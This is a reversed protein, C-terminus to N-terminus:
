IRLNTSLALHVAQVPPRVHPSARGLTEVPRVASAGLYSVTAPAPNSARSSDASPSTASVSAVRHHDHGCPTSGGRIRAVATGSHHCTPRALVAATAPAAECNAACVDVGIPMVGFALVLALAIAGRCIRFMEELRDRCIM